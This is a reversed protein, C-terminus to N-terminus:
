TLQLSLRASLYEMYDLFQFMSINMSNSGVLRHSIIDILNVTRDIETKLDMDFQFWLNGRKWTNETKIQVTIPKKFGCSCSFRLELNVMFEVYIWTKVQGDKNCTTTSELGPNKCQKLKGCIIFALRVYLHYSRLQGPKWKRALPRALYLKLIQCVSLIFKM